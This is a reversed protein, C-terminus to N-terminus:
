VLSDNAHWTSLKGCIWGHSVIVHGLSLLVLLHGWNQLVNQTLRSFNLCWRRLHSGLNGLKFFGLWFHLLLHKWILQCLRRSGLWVAKNVQKSPNQQTKDHSDGENWVNKFIASISSSLAFRTFSVCHRILFFEGFNYVFLISRRRSGLSCCGRKWFFILFAVFEQSVSHIICM